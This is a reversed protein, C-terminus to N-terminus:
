AARAGFPNETMQVTTASGRKEKSDHPYLCFALLGAALSAVLLGLGFGSWFLWSAYFPGEDDDDDDGASTTGASAAPAPTPAAPAEATSPAATAAM